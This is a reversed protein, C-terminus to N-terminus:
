GNAPSFKSIKGKSVALWCEHCMRCDAGSSSEGQLLGDRYLIRGNSIFYTSNKHTTTGHCGSFYSNESFRSFQQFEDQKNSFIMEGDFDTDQANASRIGPIMEHLSQHPKLLGDNINSLLVNHMTKENHRSNCAVCIQERLSDMSMRKNFESLCNEKVKQSIAAPWIKAAPNNKKEVRRQQRRQSISRVRETKKEATENNINTINIVQQKDLRSRHQEVTENNRRTADIMQQQNLRSQHQEATENNRRTADIMQQQNLRSQHQEATENNRRTTDIMQQQNLRSQHQEATENNRRTADIM